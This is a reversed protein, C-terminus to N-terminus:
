RPVPIVLSGKHNNSWVSELGTWVSGESASDPHNLTFRDTVMNFAPRCIKMAKLSLKLSNEFSLDM